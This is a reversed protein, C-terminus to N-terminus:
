NICDNKGNSTQFIVVAKIHLFTHSNVMAVPASPSALTRRKEHCDRRSKSESVDNSEHQSKALVQYGEDARLYKPICIM